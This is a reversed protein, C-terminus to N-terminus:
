CRYRLGCNNSHQVHRPHSTRIHKRGVIGCVCRSWRAIPDCRVADQTHIGVSPVAHSRSSPLSHVLPPHSQCSVLHRSGAHTTHYLCPVTTCKSSQTSNNIRDPLLSRFRLHIRIDLDESREAREWEDYHVKGGMEWRWRLSGDAANLAYVSNNLSVVFLTAGTTGGRDKCSCASDNTGTAVGDVVCWEKLTLSAFTGSPIPYSWRIRSSDGGICQNPACDDDTECELNQQLACKNEYCMNKTCAYARYTKFGEKHHSRNYEFRGRGNNYIRCPTDSSDGPHISVVGKQWFCKEEDDSDGDDSFAFFYCGHRQRCLEACAALTLSSDGVVASAELGVCGQNDCDSCIQGDVLVQNSQPPCVDGGLSCRVAATLNNDCQEGSPCDDSNRVCDQTKTTSCALATTRVAYVQASNVAAAAAASSEQQRGEVVYLTLEDMSLKSALPRLKGPVGLTYSWQLREAVEAGTEIAHIENRNSSVFLVAGEDALATSWIPVRATNDLTYDWCGSSDVANVCYVKGLETGLFLKSSDRTVTPQATVESLGDDDRGPFRKPEEWRAFPMGTNIAAFHKDDSGVFLTNGDQSLVPSSHVPAGTTHKWQLLGGATDIAHIGGDDNGVFITRGNASLAPSSRLPFGMDEMDGNSDDENVNAPPHIWVRSGDATHIAHVKGGGSVFIMQGDLSLTPSSKVVGKMHYRWVMRSATGTVCRNPTCLMCDSHNDGDDGNDGDDANCFRQCAAHKQWRCHGRYKSSMADENNHCCKQDKACAGDCLNSSDGNEVWVPGNTPRPCPEDTAVCCPHWLDDLDTPCTQGPESKLCENFDCEDNRMCSIEPQLACHKEGSSFDGSTRLAYVFGDFSTVFLTTGDRSLTPAATVAGATSWSWLLRTDADVVTTFARVKRDSSGLYLTLGDASTTASSQHGGDIELSWLLRHGGGSAITNDDDSIDLAYLKSTWIYFDYQTSTWSPDSGVCTATNDHDQHCQRDVVCYKGRHNSCDGFPTCNGGELCLKSRYDPDDFCNSDTTLEGTCEFGYFSFKDDEEWGNGCADATAKTTKEWFCRGHEEQIGERFSFYDCVRECTGSDGSCSGDVSCDTGTDSCRSLHRCHESCQSLSMEETPLIEERHNDESGCKHGVKILKHGGFSFLACAEQTEVYNGDRLGGFARCEEACGGRTLTGRTNHTRLRPDLTWSRWSRCRGGSKVLKYAFPASVYLTLGDSSVSPASTVKGDTKFKWIQRDRDVIRIAYIYTDHSGVYLTGGGGSSDSSAVFVPSSVVDGNTKERWRVSGDATNVAYIFGDRSGFFVTSGDASVAPSSKVVGGTLIKWRLRNITVGKKDTFDVEIQMNPCPSCKAGCLQNGHKDRPKCVSCVEDSGTTCTATGECNM